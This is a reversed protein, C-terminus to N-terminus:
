DTAPEDIREEEVTGFSDCAIVLLTQDDARRCGQARVVCLGQSFANRQLPTRHGAGAAAGGLRRADAHRQASKM